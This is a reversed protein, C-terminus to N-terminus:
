GRQGFPRLPNRKPVLAAVRTNFLDPLEGSGVAAQTERVFRRSVSSKKSAISKMGAPLAELSRECSMRAARRAACSSEIRSSCASVVQRGTDIMVELLADGTGVGSRPLRCRESSLRKGVPRLAPKSDASRVPKKM